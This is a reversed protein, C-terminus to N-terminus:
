VKAEAQHTLRLEMRGVLTSKYWGRFIRFQVCNSAAPAIRRADLLVINAERRSFAARLFAGFSFVPLM